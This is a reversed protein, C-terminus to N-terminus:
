KKAKKCGKIGKRKRDQIYPARSPGRKETCRKGNKITYM